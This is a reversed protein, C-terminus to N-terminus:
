IRRAHVELRDSKDLIFFSQHTGTNRLLVPRDRPQPSLPTGTDSKHTLTHWQMGQRSRGSRAESTNMLLVLGSWWWLFGRRVLQPGLVGRPQTSM